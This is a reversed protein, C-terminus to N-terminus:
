DPGRHDHISQAELGEDVSRHAGSPHVHFCIRGGGERWTCEVPNRGRERGGHHWQGDEDVHGIPLGSPWHIRDHNQRVYAQSTSHQIHRQISSIPRAYTNGVTVCHYRRVYQQIPSPSNLRKLVLEDTIPLLDLAEHFYTNVASRLGPLIHDNDKPIAVMDCLCEVNFEASAVYEHWRTTMLWPTVRREDSTTMPVDFEEDLEKLLSEVLSEKSPQGEQVAEEIYAEWIVHRAGHIATGPASIKQAKCPRWSRPKPIDVHRKYHHTRMTSESLYIKPCHECAFADHVLLGHVESRPGEIDMPFDVALRVDTIARMLRVQDIQLMSHTKTVHAILDERLLAISCEQCALFRFEKNVVLNLVSLYPHYLLGRSTTYRPESNADLVPVHSPEPSMAKTASGAQHHQELM